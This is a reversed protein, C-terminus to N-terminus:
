WYHAIDCVECPRSRKRWVWWYHACGDGIRWMECRVHSGDKAGCGGTIPYMERKVLTVDRAGSRGSNSVGM